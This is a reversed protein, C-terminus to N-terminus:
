EPKNLIGKNIEHSCLSLVPAYFELISAEQICKIWAHFPISAYGYKLYCHQHLCVQMGSELLEELVGVERSKPGLTCAIKTKTPTVDDTDVQLLM